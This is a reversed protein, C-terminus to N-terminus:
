NEDSFQVKKTASEIGVNKRVLDDVL